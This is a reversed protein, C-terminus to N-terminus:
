PVQCSAVSSARSVLSDFRASAAAARSLRIAAMSAAMAARLVGMASALGSAALPGPASRRKLTLVKSM